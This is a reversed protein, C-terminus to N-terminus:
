DTETVTDCVTESLTVDVALAECVTDAEVDIVTLTLEDRLWGTDRM